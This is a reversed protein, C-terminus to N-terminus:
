AGLQAASGRNRLLLAPTEMARPAALHSWSKTSPTDLPEAM